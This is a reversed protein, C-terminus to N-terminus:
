ASEEIFQGHHERHHRFCLWRVDLPKSYDDHHGEVRDRTGCVECTGKMLRGDRIANGVAQRAIYKEKHEVRRKAQYRLAAARREPRQSREKEYSIRENRTRRSNLRVDKKACEKCKNLHGDAMMPHKYFAALDKTEGCKFCRKM